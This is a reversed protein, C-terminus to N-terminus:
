KGGDSYWTYGNKRDADEDEEVPELQEQAAEEKDDDLGVEETGGTNEQCLTSQLWFMKM